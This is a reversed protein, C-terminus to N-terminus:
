LGLETLGPHGEPRPGSRDWHFLREQESIPVDNISAHRHKMLGNEDFEWNENGHARFWKGEEDHYEYCFRVAIRNESHAWIEKILRYENEKQWKEALFDRIEDRGQLFVSRNRWVSDSTYAMKVRDPDRSNWADEALRVKKKADDLSFPPVPPRVERHITSLGRCITNTNLIIKMALSKKHDTKPCLSGLIGVKMWSFLSSRFDQSCVRLCYRDNTLSFCYWLIM